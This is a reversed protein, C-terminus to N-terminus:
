EPGAAPLLLARVTKDGNGTLVVGGPAVAIMRTGGLPGEFEAQRRGSAVSWVTLLNGEDGSVARRGGPLFALAHVNGGEAKFERMLRGSAADFHRIFDDEGGTLVTKGDPAFALSYIAEKNGKLRAIRPALPAM